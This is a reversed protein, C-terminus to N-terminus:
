LNGDALRDLFDIVRDTDGDRILDLPRAGQLQRNRAHLWLEGGEEDFVETVLDLVYQLDLLQRLRKASSPGGKGAIWNQVQRPGVGVVEAIDATTLGGKTKVHEIVRALQQDTVTSASAHAPM